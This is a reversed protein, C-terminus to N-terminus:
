GHQSGSGTWRRTCYPHLLSFSEERLSHKLSILKKKKSKKLLQFLIEKLKFVSFWRVACGGSPANKNLELCMSPLPPGLPVLSRIATNNKLPLIQAFNSKYNATQLKIIMDRCKVHSKRARDGYSRGLM